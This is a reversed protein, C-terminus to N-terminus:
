RTADPVFALGPQGEVFYLTGGPVKRSALRPNNGPGPSAVLPASAAHGGSRYGFAFGLSAGIAFVGFAYFWSFRPREETASM